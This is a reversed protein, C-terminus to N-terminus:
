GGPPVEAGNRGPQADVEPYEQAIVAQLRRIALTLPDDERDLGHLSDAFAQEARIVAQVAFIVRGARGREELRSAEEVAIVNLTDEIDGRDIM